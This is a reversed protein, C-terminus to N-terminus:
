SFVFFFLFFFLSLLLFFFIGVNLITIMFVFYMTENNSKQANLLLM